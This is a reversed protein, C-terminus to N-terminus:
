KFFALYQDRRKKRKFYNILSFIIESIKVVSPIGRLSLKFFVSLFFLIMATKSTAVNNINIKLGLPVVEKKIKVKAKHFPQFRSTSKNNSDFTLFRFKKKLFKIFKHIDKNHGAITGNIGESSLIIIGKLSTNLMENVLSLIINRESHLNYTIVHFM